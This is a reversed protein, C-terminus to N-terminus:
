NLKSASRSIAKNKDLTLSAELIQESSINRSEDEDLLDEPETLILTKGNDTLPNFTSDPTLTTSTDTTESKDGEAVEGTTTTETIIGEELDTQSGSQTFTASKNRKPVLITETSSPSEEMVMEKITSPRLINAMSIKQPNRRNKELFALFKDWVARPETIRPIDYNQSLYVGSYLGTLFSIIAGVFLHTAIFLVLIANYSYALILWLTQFM